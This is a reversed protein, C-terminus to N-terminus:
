KFYFPYDFGGIYTPYKLFLNGNNDYNDFSMQTTKDNKESIFLKNLSEIKSVDYLSTSLIPISRGVDGWCYMQSANELGTTACAFSKSTEKVQIRVNDIGWSEDDIGQAGAPEGYDDPGDKTAATTSFKVKLKGDADLITKIKYHFTQDGDNEVSNTSGILQLYQGTDNDDVYFPHNDHVFRDVVFDIDNLTVTFKEFDWTDIEYFDFELEVENGAYVLGLDFTKEIYSPPVDYGEGVGMSFRGLFATPVIKDVPGQDPINTIVVKNDADMNNASGSWGDSNLNEFDEFEEKKITDLQYISVNAFNAYEKGNSKNSFTNLEDLSTKFINTSDLSCVTGDTNRCVLFENSGKLELNENVYLYLESGSADYISASVASSPITSVEAINKDEITRYFKNDEGKLLFDKSNTFIADSNFKKSTNLITPKNYTTGNPREGWIYFFNNSDIAGFSSIDRLAFIKKFVIDDAKVEEPTSQIIFKDNSEIGLTGNYNKGITYIKGEDSLVAITDEVMAIDVLYIEDRQIVLENESSDKIEPGGDESIKISKPEDNTKDDKGWAFFKNKSLISTESIGLDINEYYLKAIQGNCYLDGGVKKKKDAFNDFLPSVGCVNTSNMSIKEFKVRYPNNYWKKIKQTAEEIQVKLMIPTNVYDPKLSTDLQGYTEIGAKRYNNNGWCFVDGNALMCGGDRRFILDKANPIYSSIKDEIDLDEDVIELSSGMGIPIWNISNVDGQYYYEYWSNGNKVYAKEGIKGKIYPLEDLNEVYIPSEQYVEVKRNVEKCYKYILKENNLEYFYGGKTCNENPFKIEKGNVENLVNVIERQIDNYVVLSGAKLKQKTKDVPPITNVRFIKNTYFNYLYNNKENYDKEEKIIGEIYASNDLTFSVVIQANTVPNNKNFNEGLYDDKMLKDWDLTNDNKKPISAKQLIYKNIALSIYEEKQIM